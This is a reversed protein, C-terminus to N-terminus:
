IVITEPSIVSVSGNFADDIGAGITKATANITTLYSWINRDHVECIAVSCLGEIRNVSDNVFGSAREFRLNMEGLNKLLEDRSSELQMTRERIKLDLLINLNKKRKFSRFAFLGFALTILALLATVGNFARQREIVNEKLELVEKQSAIKAKNEHEKFDAEATMLRNTLEYSFVSDKLQIYKQQYLTLKRYAGLEGFVECLQWYVQVRSQVFAAENRAVREGYM